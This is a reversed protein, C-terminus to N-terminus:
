TSAAVAADQDHLTRLYFGLFILVPLEAYAAAMPHVEVDIASRWWSRKVFTMLAEENSTQWYSKSGWFSNKFKLVNGDTMYLTGGGTWSYHFPLSVDGSEEAEAVIQRRFWGKRNLMWRQGLGDVTAVNNFWREFQMTAMHEGDVFLHYERRWISPKVWVVKRGILKGQKLQPGM